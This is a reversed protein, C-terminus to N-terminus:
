IQRNIESPRRNKMDRGAEKLNQQIQVAKIAIKIIVYDRMTKMLNELYSQMKSDNYYEKSDNYEKACSLLKKLSAPKPNQVIKFFSCGFYLFGYQDNM